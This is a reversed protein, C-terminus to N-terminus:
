VRETLASSIMGRSKLSVRSWGLLDFHVGTEDSRISETSLYVVSLNIKLSCIYGCTLKRETYM